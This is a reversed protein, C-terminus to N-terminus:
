LSMETWCTQPYLRTFRAGSSFVVFFIFLLLYVLESNVIPSTTLKHSIFQFLIVQINKYYSKSAYVPRTRERERENRDTLRGM